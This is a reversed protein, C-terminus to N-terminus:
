MWFHKDAFLVRSVKLISYNEIFSYPSFGELWFLIQFHFWTHMKQIKTLLVLLYQKVPVSWDQFPFLLFTFTLPSPHMCSANHEESTDFFLHHLVTVTGCIETDHSQCDLDFVFGGVSLTVKMLSPQQFGILTFIRFNEM